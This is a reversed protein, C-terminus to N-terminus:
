LSYTVHAYFCSQRRVKMTNLQTLTKKVSKKTLSMVELWFLLRFRFFDSIMHALGPELARLRSIHHIWTCCALHLHPPINTAISEELNEVDANHVFSSSLGCINFRLEGAMIHLCAAAIKKHTYMNPFFPSASPQEALSERFTGQPLVVRRDKVDKDAFLQVLRRTTRRFSSQDEESLYCASSILPALADVPIPEQTVLVIALFSRVWSTINGDAPDFNHSLLSHYMHERNSYRKIM